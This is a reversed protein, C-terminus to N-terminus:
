RVRLGSEKEEARKREIAIGAIRSAYDILQIEGPGPHRVERYYMCFTGLVKGDQSMTPTSWAARLGSQLVIGGFNAWNPHSLIDSVFVPQRQSCCYVRGRPLRGLFIHRGHGAGAGIVGGTLRSFQSWNSGFQFEMPIGTVVGMIFSIGVV